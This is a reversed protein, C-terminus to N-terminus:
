DEKNKQDKITGDNIDFKNSKENRNGFDGVVTTKDKRKLKDDEIRGM